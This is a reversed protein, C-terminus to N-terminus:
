YNIEERILVTLIKRMMPLCKITRHNNLPPDKKPDKPDPHDKRQDDM